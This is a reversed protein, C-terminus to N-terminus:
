LTIGARPDYGSRAAIDLGAIDADNQDERSLKLTLLNGGIRFLDAYRGSGLVPGLVGASLQALQNKAIRARARERVAHAIEHGTVVAVEDDTLKLTDLLGFFAIKGRPMCFANIQKSGILKAEWKWQRARANFRSANPIRRQTITRLRVLQM